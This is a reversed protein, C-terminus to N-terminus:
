SKILIQYKKLKQSVGKQEETFFDLKSNIINSSSFLKSSTTIFKGGNKEVAKKEM